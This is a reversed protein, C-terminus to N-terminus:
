GSTPRSYDLYNWEWQDRRTRCRTHSFYFPFGGIVIESRAKVFSHENGLYETKKRLMCM